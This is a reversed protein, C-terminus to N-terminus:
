VEIRDYQVIRVLVLNPLAGRQGPGGTQHDRILFSLCIRIHARALSMKQNLAAALCSSSHIAIVRVAM